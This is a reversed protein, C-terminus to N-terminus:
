LIYKDFLNFIILGKRKAYEYAIKTGSRTTTNSFENHNGKRKTPSYNEDYYLVCFHSNDVMNYNREIYMAKGANIIQEPYYTDEYETLLYKKYSNDIYPFEARVYVRKIHPYREKLKTVTQLCLKDFESKGGFLFTDIQENIILQEIIIILKQKLEDTVNIKRHGFFCCTNHKHMM